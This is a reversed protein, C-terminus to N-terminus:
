KNEAEITIIRNRIVGVLKAVYDYKDFNYENTIEMLRNIEEPSKNEKTFLFAAEQLDSLKIDSMSEGKLNHKKAFEEENKCAESHHNRCIEILNNICEEGDDKIPIIHHLHTYGEWGCIKCKYEKHFEM